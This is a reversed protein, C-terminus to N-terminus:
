GRPRRRLREAGDARARGSPQRVPRPRRRRRRGVGRRARRAPPGDDREAGFEPFLLPADPELAVFADTVAALPQLEIEVLEAADFAQARTAAVVVAIPEGVFRVRERALLPRDLAGDGGMARAPPLDLDAATFVDVVGPAARAAGVDVTTLLAHASTSRVFVAWHADSQLAVDDVFRARGTLLAVM